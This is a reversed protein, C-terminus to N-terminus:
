FMNRFRIILKISFEPLKADEHAVFYEKHIGINSYIKHLHGDRVLKAVIDIKERHDAQSPESCSLNQAFFAAVVLSYRINKM